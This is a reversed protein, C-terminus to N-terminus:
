FGMGLTLGVKPLIGRYYREFISGENLVTQSEVSPLDTTKKVDNMKIGGGVYVDLYMVELLTFQYGFLVAPTIWRSEAKSFYNVAISNNNIYQYQISNEQYTNYGAVVSFGFYFGEARNESWGGTTDVHFLKPYRRAQLEFAVGQDIIRSDVRYTGVLGITYSSKYNKTFLESSLQISRDLFHFPSLKILAPRRVDEFPKRGGAQLIGYSFLLVTSLAILKNM